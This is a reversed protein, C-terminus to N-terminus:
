NQTLYKQEYEEKSMVGGFRNGLLKRSRVELDAKEDPPLDKGNKTEYVVIQKDPPLFPELEERSFGQGSWNLEFTLTMNEKGNMGFAEKWKSAFELQEKM